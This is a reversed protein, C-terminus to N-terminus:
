EEEKKYSSEYIEPDFSFFDEFLFLGSSFTFVGILLQAKHQSIYPLGEVIMPIAYLIGISLFFIGSLTKLIILPRNNTKPLYIIGLAVVISLVLLVLDWYKWYAQLNCIIYVPDEHM